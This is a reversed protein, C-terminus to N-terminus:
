NCQSTPFPILQGKTFCEILHDRMKFQDYGTLSPNDGYALSTMYAIVFLGCDTGGIQTQMEPTCVYTSDETGLMNTIFEISEEDTTTHLSDYIHM